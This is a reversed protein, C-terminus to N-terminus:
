GLALPIERCIEEPPWIWFGAEPRLYVVRKDQVGSIVHALQLASRELLLVLLTFIAGLRAVRVRRAVRITM